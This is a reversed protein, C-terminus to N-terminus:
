LKAEEEAQLRSWGQDVLVNFIMIRLATVWQMRSMITGPIFRWANPDALCDIKIAPLLYDRDPCLQDLKRMSTIFQELWLDEQLAAASAIWAVGDMATTTKTRAPKAYIAGKIVKVDRPATGQYDSFRSSSQVM